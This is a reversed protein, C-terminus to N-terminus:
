LNLPAPVPSMLAKFGAPVQTCVPAPPGSCLDYLSFGGFGVEPNPNLKKFCYHKM